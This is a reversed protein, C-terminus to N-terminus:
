LFIKSIVGRFPRYIPIDGMYGKVSLGVSPSSVSPRVLDSVGAKKTPMLNDIEM